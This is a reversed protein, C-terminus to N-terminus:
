YYKFHIYIQCFLADYKLGYRLFRSPLLLSTLVERPTKPSLGAADGLPAPARKQWPSGAESATRKATFLSGETGIYAAKM